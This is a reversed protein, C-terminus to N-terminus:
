LPRLTDKSIIDAYGMHTLAYAVCANPLTTLASGRAMVATPVTDVWRCLKMHQLVVVSYLFNICFFIVAGGNKTVNFLFTLTQDKIVLVFM